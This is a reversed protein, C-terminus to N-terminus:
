VINLLKKESPDLVASKVDVNAKVYIMSKENAAFKGMKGIAGMVGSKEALNAIQSQAVVFPVTFPIEQKQGEAITMQVDLKQSGLKNEKTKKSDGVGSTLEEFVILEVSVIEQDSKSSLVLNGVLDEDRSIQSPVSIEISVGGIGLKDKIGKFFGM